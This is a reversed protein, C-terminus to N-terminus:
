IGRLIGLEKFKAEMTKLKYNMMKHKERYEKGYKRMIDQMEVM